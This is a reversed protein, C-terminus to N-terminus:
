CYSISGSVIKLFAVSDGSNEVTFKAEFTDSDPTIWLRNNNDRFVGSYTIKMKGGIGYLPIKSLIRLMIGIEKRCLKLVFIINTKVMLKRLESASSELLHQRMILIHGTIAEDAVFPMFM